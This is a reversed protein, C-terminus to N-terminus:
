RIKRLWLSGGSEFINLKENVWDFHERALYNNFMEITFTCNYMLFARLLYAENWYIGDKLWELPYEFPYVIDHFHILVGKKLGPVLNFLIHNLDSNYKTVHSTDVFLIDNEGLKLLNDFPVDQIRQELIWKMDKEGLLCILREPNPDIFQFQIKDNESLLDNTDLMLASSYGSGIEIIRKPRSEKIMSFLIFADTRNFYSNNWYYRKETNPERPFNFQDVYKKFKLINSKQQDINLPVCDVVLKHDQPLRALIDASSPVPSYYHGPRYVGGYLRAILWRKLKTLM